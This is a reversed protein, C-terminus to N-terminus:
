PGLPAPQKQAGKIKSFVDNVFNAGRGIVLGTLVVGLTSAEFGFVVAPLDLRYALALGVGALASVYMLTWKFPSLQAVKDFLGGLFFEVLGETALFGFFLAAAFLAVENM